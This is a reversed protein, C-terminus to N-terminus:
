RLGPPEPQPNLGPPYPQPNLGASVTSLETAGLSRPAKTLGHTANQRQKAKM